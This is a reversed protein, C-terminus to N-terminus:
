KSYKSRQCVEKTRKLWFSYSALLLVDVIWKAKNLIDDKYYANEAMQAYKFLIKSIDIFSPM